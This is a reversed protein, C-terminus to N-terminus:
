RQREFRYFLNPESVVYLNGDADMSLGEAQPAGHELDGFGGLSRFSVLGGQGDLEMILRSEESLVLLHGSKRDYHLDSIDTGFVSRKVWASHDIVKLQLKGALSARVGTIEYIQRPGREKGIFLRDHGADYTLGEFGKNHLSPNIALAISQADRADIGQGPREPLAFFDIQQLNEDSVAVLGGGLYAVGEVDQFGNMPYQALLEGTKSLVALKMAGANTVAILRDQDFDYSIASLDSEIGKVPLADIVVKYDPLWVSRGAWEAAHLQSSIYFYARQQWHGTLVLTVAPLLLAVVLALSLWARRDLRRRPPHLSLIDVSDVARNM